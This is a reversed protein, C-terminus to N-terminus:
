LKVDPNFLHFIDSKENVFEVGQQLIMWVMEYRVREEFIDLPENSNKYASFKFRTRPTVIQVEFTHDTPHM